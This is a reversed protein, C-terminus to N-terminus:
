ITLGSGSAMTHLSDIRQWGKRGEEGLANHKNQHKGILFGFRCLSLPAGTVRIAVAEPKM